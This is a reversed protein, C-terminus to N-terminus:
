ASASGEKDEELSEVIVWDPLCRMLEPLLDPLVGSVIEIFDDQDFDAPGALLFQVKVYYAYRSSMNFAFKRVAEPTPMIEGNAIFFYGAYVRQGVNAESGFETTRLQFDGIPMHVRVPKGTVRDYYTLVPYPKGTRQNLHESSLVWQTDDIKLPLNKPRAKPVLGGAVLCRDPVHPVADIMGTYYTIHLLMQLGSEGAGSQTYRRDIYQDTGLEEIVEATFPAGEGQARWNGLRLPITTLQARLDVPEKALYANTAEVAFRFGIGMGVLTIAAAVFAFKANRDFLKM